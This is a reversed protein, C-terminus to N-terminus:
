PYIENGNANLQWAVVSKVYMPQNAGTSLLLYLHQLDVMGYTYPVTQFAPPPPQTAGGVFKVWSVSSNTPQGDLYYIAYGDTLTGGSTTATGSCSSASGPANSLTWSTPISSYGSGPLTVLLNGSIVGSTASFIGTANGSPDTALCTGSGTVSGGSVYAIAGGVRNNVGVAPIWLLGYKHFATASFQGPPAVLTGGTNTVGCYGPCTVGFVGYHNWFTAAYWNNRSFAATWPTYESFDFENCNTYGTTAGPWQDQVPNLGTPQCERPSAWMSPWNGNPGAAQSNLPDYAATVEFYGGAGFALGVNTGSGFAGTRGITSVSASAGNIIMYNPTITVTSALAPTTVSINSFYWNKGPLYTQAFDIESSAFLSCFTPTIYGVALAPAPISSCPSPNLLVNGNVTPTGLLPTSTASLPYMTGPAVGAIKSVSLAGTSPNLTGDGTVTPTTAYPGLGSIDSASPQSLIPLGSTNISSIWQHSVGAIAQVGGIIGITAPSLTVQVSGTSGGGSLGTGASVQTITGGSGGPLVTYAGTTNLTGQCSYIVGGYQKLITSSTVRCQQTTPDANVPQPVPNTVQAYM